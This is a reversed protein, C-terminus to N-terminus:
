DPKIDNDRVVRGWQEMQAAFFVRLEDPGTTMLNVQQTEVLTRLTREERYAARLAAAFREVLPAPTGVPAFVGWWAEGTFGTFGSEAVTPVQALTAVRNAGTQALPRLTGAALHTAFLASSAIAVPVHGAIADNALPGGGRYPIHNLRVEARRALLTMALHGLSGNGITGYPVAGPRAKADALLDALARYPQSPHCTIVMPATGILSVPQLDRTSDFPLNPILAPNVAHTDFVVLWTGGDPASRAVSAAGVSGAAGPRNEVIVPVGLGRELGPQALRAMADTSGGPPFPVLLRINQTPWAQALAPAALSLSTGAALLGRRTMTM